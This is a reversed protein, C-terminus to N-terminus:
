PRLPIIGLGKRKFSSLSVMSVMSEFYTLWRGWLRLGSKEQDSKETGTWNPDDDRKIGGGCGRRNEM